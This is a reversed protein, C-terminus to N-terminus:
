DNRLAKRITQRCKGTRRSAENISFYEVGDLVVYKCKQKKAYQETDKYNRIFSLRGEVWDVGPCEVSRKNTTGNNWWVSGRVASAGLESLVTKDHEKREDTYRASKAFEKMSESMKKKTEDSRKLGWNPNGKGVREKKWRESLGTVDGGLGGIAENLGMYMEYRLSVEREICEKRTGEYIIKLNDEYTWGNKRITRGVTSNARAHQKWRKNPRKSIGIYGEDIDESYSIHYVYCQNNAM